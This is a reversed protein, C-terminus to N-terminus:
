AKHKGSTRGLGLRDTVFLQKGLPLKGQQVVLVFRDAVILGDAYGVIPSDASWKVTRIVQLLYDNHLVALLFGRPLCSTATTQWPHTFAVVVRTDSHICGLPVRQHEIACHRMSVHIDVAFFHAVPRVAVVRKVAIDQGPQEVAVTHIYIDIQLVFGLLAAPIRTRPQVAIHM